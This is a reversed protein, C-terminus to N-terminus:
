QLSDSTRTPTPCSRSWPRFPEARPPGKRGLAIAASWRVELNRDELARALAPVAAEGIRGLAVAAAGRLYMDEHSLAAVLPDVAPQGLRGMSAAAAERVHPDPDALDRVLAPLEAPPPGALLGLTAVLLLLLTRWRSGAFSHMGAM